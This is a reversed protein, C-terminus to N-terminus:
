RAAQAGLAASRIASSLDEVWKNYKPHISAKAGSQEYNMNASSKYTIQFSQADYAVDVVVQHQGSDAELTLVGPKDGVAKWTHTAGGAIIAKRVAEVSLPTADPSVIQQRGLEIMAASRAVAFGTAALLTVAVLMARLTTTTKM